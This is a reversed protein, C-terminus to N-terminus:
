NEKNNGWRKMVADLAEKHNAAHLDCLDALAALLPRRAAVQDGRAEPWGYDKAIMDRLERVTGRWCGIQMRWGQATPVMVAQYPHLGTVQLVGGTVSRLDAGSLDAGSLDAVRLDAGRPAQPQEGRARATRLAEILENKEM